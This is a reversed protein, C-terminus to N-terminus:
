RVIHEDRNEVEIFEALKCGFGKKAEFLSLIPIRIGCKSLDVVLVRDHRTAYARTRELQVLADNFGGMPKTLLYRTVHDERMRCVSGVSCTMSGSRAALDLVMKAVEENKKQNIKLSPHATWIMFEGNPKQMLRCGKAWLLSSLLAFTALLIAGAPTKRTSLSLAIDVIKIDMLRSMDHRM